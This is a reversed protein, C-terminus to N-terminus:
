DNESSPSSPHDHRFYWVVQTLSVGDSSRMAPAAPNEHHSLSLSSFSHASPAGQHSETYTAVPEDQKGHYAALQRLSGLSIHSSKWLVIHAMFGPEISLPIEIRSFERHERHETEAPRFSRHGAQRM